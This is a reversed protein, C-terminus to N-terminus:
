RSVVRFYYRNKDCVLYVIYGKAVLQRKWLRLSPDALDSVLRIKNVIV